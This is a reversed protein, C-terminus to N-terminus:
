AGAATWALPRGKGNEMKWKGNEMGDTPRPRSLRQKHCPDTVGHTYKFLNGAQLDRELSLNLSNVAAEEISRM